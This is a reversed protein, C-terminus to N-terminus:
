VITTERKIRKKKSGFGVLSSLFIYVAISIMDELRLAYHAPNNRAGSREM